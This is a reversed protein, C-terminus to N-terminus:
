YKRGKGKGGKPWGGGRPPSGRAPVERGPARLASQREEPGLEFTVHSRVLDAEKRGVTAGVEPRQPQWLPLQDRPARDRRRAGGPLKQRVAEQRLAEKKMVVPVCSVVSDPILELHRALEWSGDAAATEIARFRQMLIDGADALRGGLLCDLTEALTRLEREARLNLSAGASPQLATTLYTTVLKRVSELSSREESGLQHPGAGGVFGAMLKLGSRLFAGPRRNAGQGIAGALRDSPSVSSPSSSQARRRRRRRGHRERSSSGESSPERRKRRSRRRDEEKKLHTAARDALMGDLSQKSSRSVGQKDEEKAATEKRHHKAKLQDLRNRLLDIKSLDKGKGGGPAGGEAAEDGETTKQKQVRGAIDWLLEDLDDEGNEQPTEDGQLATGDEQAEDRGFLQPGLTAAGTAAGSQKPGTKSAADKEKPMRM